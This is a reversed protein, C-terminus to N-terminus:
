KGLEDIRANLENVVVELQSSKAEIKTKLIDLDRYKAENREANEIEQNLRSSLTQIEMSSRQEVRRARTLQAETESLKQQTEKLDPELRSIALFKARVQTGAYCESIFSIRFFIRPTHCSHTINVTGCVSGVYRQWPSTESKSDQTDELFTDRLHSLAETHEMEDDNEEENDENKLMKESLHKSIEILSSLLLDSESKLCSLVQSWDDIEKCATEGLNLLKMALDFMKKLVQESEEEDDGQHYVARACRRVVRRITRVREITKSERIYECVAAAVMMTKNTNEVEEDVDEVSVDLLSKSAMSAETNVHRSSDEFSVLCLIITDTYFRSMKSVTKSVALSSLKTTMGEDASSSTGCLRCVEDRLLNSVGSGKSVTNLLSDLVHEAEGFPAVLDTVCKLFMEITTESSNM